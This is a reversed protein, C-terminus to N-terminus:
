WCFTSREKERFGGSSIGSIAALVLPLSILVISCLTRAAFGIAFVSLGFLSIILFAYLFATEDPNGDLLELTTILLSLTGVFFWWTADGICNFMLKVTSRDESPDGGVWHRIRKQASM